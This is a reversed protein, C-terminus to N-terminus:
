RAVTEAGTQRPALHAALTLLPVAGVLVGDGDVRVAALAPSATASDLLDHLTGGPGVPEM